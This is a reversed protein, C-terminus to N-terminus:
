NIIMLVRLPSCCPKCFTTLDSIKSGGGSDRPYLNQNTVGVTWALCNYQPVSGGAPTANGTKRTEDRVLHPFRDKIENWEANTLATGSM